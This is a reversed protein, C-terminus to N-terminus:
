EAGLIKNLIHVQHDGYNLHSESDPSCQHSQRRNVASSNTSLHSIYKSKIKYCNQIISDFISM